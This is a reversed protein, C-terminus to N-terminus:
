TNSNIKELDAIRHNAVRMQEELVPVRKAFNDHERVERTLEEIKCDTVAQATDLQYEIQDGIKKNSKVNSIVIGLM